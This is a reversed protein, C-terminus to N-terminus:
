QERRVDPDGSNRKITMGEEVLTMCARVHEVENITMLCSQCRGNSCYIGRPQSLKRSHGLTYVGNAMLASAVTQGKQVELPTGEFYVTIKAEFPVEGFVPHNVRDM